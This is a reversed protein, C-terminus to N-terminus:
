QYRKTLIMKTAEKPTQIVVAGLRILGKTRGDDIVLVYEVDLYTEYSNQTLIRSSSSVWHRVWSSRTGFVSVQAHCWRSRALIRWKMTLEKWEDRKHVCNATLIEYDEHSQRNVPWCEGLKIIKDFEHQWNLGSLELIAQNKLLRSESWSSPKRSRWPWADPTTEGDTQRQVSSHCLEGRTISINMSKRSLCEQCRPKPQTLVRLYANHM